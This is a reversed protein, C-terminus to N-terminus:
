QHNSISFQHILHVNVFDSELMVRVQRRAGNRRSRRRLRLLQKARAIAKSPEPVLTHTRYANRYNIENM